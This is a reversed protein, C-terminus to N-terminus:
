TNSRRGEEFIIFIMALFILLYMYPWTHTNLSMFAFFALGLSFLLNPLNKKLFLFIIFITLMQFLQLFPFISSDLLFQIVQSLHISSGFEIGAERSSNYFGFVHEYYNDINNFVFPLFLVLATIGSIAIFRATNKIGRKKYLYIFLIPTFIWSWVQTFISFGWVIPAILDKKRKFFYIFLVFIFWYPVDYLDTRFIRYPFFILLLISFYGVFNHQIEKQYINVLLFITLSFYFINAFRIDIGLLQFPIYFLINGPQRVAQTAVGNDLLYYQYINEGNFLSSIMENIIPILDGLKASAPVLYMISISMLSALFLFSYITRVRGLRSTNSVVISSLITLIFLIVSVIYFKDTHILESEAQWLRYISFELILFNLWLFSQLLITQYKKSIDFNLTSNRSIVFFFLLLLFGFASYIAILIQSSSQSLPFISDRHFNLFLWFGILGFM